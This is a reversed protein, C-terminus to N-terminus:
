KEDSHISFNSVHLPRVEFLISWQRKKKWERVRILEKETAKESFFLPDRAKEDIILYRIEQSRVMEIIEEYRKEPMRVWPMEAYFAEQPLRSMIKGENSLHDKIWLGIERQIVRHERGHTV